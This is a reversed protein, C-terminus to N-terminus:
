NRRSNKEGWNRDLITTQHYNWTIKNYAKISFITGNETSVYMHNQWADILAQHDKTIALASFPKVTVPSSIIEGDRVMIGLPSDPNTVYFFDTNIAAIPHEKQSLMQGLTEKHSVGQSSHLLDIENRNDELDVTVVNLHLWGNEGFRLIREHTVGSGITHSQRDEYLFNGALVPQVAASMFMVVSIFITLSVKEWSKM